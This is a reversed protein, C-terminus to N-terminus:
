FFSVEKLTLNIPVKKVKPLKVVNPTAKMKSLMCIVHTFPNTSGYVM